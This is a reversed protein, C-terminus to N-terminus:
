DCSIVGAVVDIFRRIGSETDFRLVNRRGSEVLEKRLLPDDIISEVAAAFEAAGADPPLLVGADGCTDPIAATARALVPVGMAMAELIPLCLGEHVSATAMLDARSYLSALEPDSVPGVLAVSSIGLTSVTRAISDAVVEDTRGGAIVFRTRRGSLQLLLASHVLTEIRKHQLMQGSFVVVFEDEGIGLRGIIREDPDIRVLRWPDVGAPIVEVERYGHRLLDNRNFDSDAVVAVFRNRLLELERWGWWLMAAREPNTEEFHEAPSLNHFVLVLRESRSALFEFTRPDGYSAHFILVSGSPLAEPFMGTSLVQDMEPDLHTAFVDSGVVMRLADRIRLAMNTIADNPSAGVLIQDVRISSRPDIMAVSM